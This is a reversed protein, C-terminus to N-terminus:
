KLNIPAASLPKLEPPAAAYATTDGLEAASSAQEDTTRNKEAIIALTKKVEQLAADNSPDITGARQFEAVAGQLDGNERLKQGQKIHLASAELRIQNLKIRYAANRPDANYAKQYYQLATDLDQLNEAKRAQNYEGGGKPCGAAVLGIGVCLIVNGWRRMM